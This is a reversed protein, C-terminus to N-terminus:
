FEFLYGEACIVPGKALREMLGAPKKPAAKTARKVSKKATKTAM